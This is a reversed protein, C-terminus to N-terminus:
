AAHNLTVRHGVFSGRLMPRGYTWPTEWFRRFNGVDVSIESM